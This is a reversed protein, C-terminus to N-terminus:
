RGNIYDWDSWADESSQGALRAAGFHEAMLEARNEADYARLPHAVVVVEPTKVARFYANTSAKQAEITGVPCATAEVVPADAGTPVVTGKVSRAYTNAASESGFTASGAKGDKGTYEVKFGM